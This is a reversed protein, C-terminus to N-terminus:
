QYLNPRCQMHVAHSTFEGNFGTHQTQCQCSRVSLLQQTGVHQVKEELQGQLQLILGENEEAEAEQRQKDEELELIRQRLSTASLHADGQLQQRAAEAARVRDEASRFKEELM